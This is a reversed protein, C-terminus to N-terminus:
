PRLVRIEPVVRLGSFKLHLFHSANFLPNLTIILDLSQNVFQRQGKVEVLFLRYTLLLKIKRVTLRLLSDLIQLHLVHQALFLIRKPRNELDHSASSAGLSLVPRLHEHSHIEAPALAVFQIRLDCTKNIAVFSSYLCDGNLYFAVIGIPM